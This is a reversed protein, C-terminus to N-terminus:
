KAAHLYVGTAAQTMGQWIAANTHDHDIKGTLALSLSHLLEHMHLSAGGSAEDLAVHAHTTGTCPSLQATTYGNVGDQGLAAVMTERDLVIVGTHELQAMVASTKTASYLESGEWARVISWAAKAVNQARLREGNAMATPATGKGDWRSEDAAADHLVTASFGEFSGDERTLDVGLTDLTCAPAAPALPASAKAPAAVPAAESAPATVVPSVGRAACGTMALLVWVTLLRTTM